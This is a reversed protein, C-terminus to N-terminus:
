GGAPAVGSADPGDPSGGKGGSFVLAGFTTNQRDGSSGHPSNSGIGGTGVNGTIKEEPTVAYPMDQGGVLVEVTGM